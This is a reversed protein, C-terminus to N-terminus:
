GISFRLNIQNAMRKMFSAFRSLDKESVQQRMGVAWVAAQLDKWPVKLPVGIAIIGEIYEELDFAIGEERVKMISERYKTKNTCTYPTFKRLKNESLIRDIEQDSLQSLLAKGGAGALLPLRMGVESSIKLDVAAEAIDLIIAKMGSRIGLFTTLNTEQSIKVLFPRVTNILASGEGSAKALVFLRNGFRFKKNVEELVGLDTLTYAINFVTSKNIRLAKAIESVGLPRKEKALLELISFCKDLAPVQKYSVKM